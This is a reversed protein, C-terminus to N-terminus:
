GPDRPVPTPPAGAGRRRGYRALAKLDSRRGLVIAAGHVRDDIMRLRLTVGWRRRDEYGGYMSARRRSSVPTLAVVNPKQIM